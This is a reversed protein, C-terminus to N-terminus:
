LYGGSVSICAARNDGGGEDKGQWLYGGSVSVCAAGTTM